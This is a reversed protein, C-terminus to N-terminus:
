IWEAETTRDNGVNGTNLTSKPEILLIQAEEKAVPRHEVRRPVIVMEGAKLPIDGTRLQLRMTGKILLFLEDEEEHQHWVFEGKLKVLKVYVDNVEGIIKPKWVEEFGAFKEALNIAKMPFRLEPSRYSLM